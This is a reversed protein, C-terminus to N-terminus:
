GEIKLQREPLMTIRNDANVLYAFDTGATMSKHGRREPSRRERVALPLQRV